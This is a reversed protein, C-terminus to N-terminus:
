PPHHKQGLLQSRGADESQSKRRRENHGALRKRCSRKNDDFQSLVQFRSCQQCYRQNIGGVLVVAAKAHRECVRHRRHYRKASILDVDCGDAQCCLMQFNVVERKAGSVGILDKKKSEEEEAETEEHEDEDDEDDQECGGYDKREKLTRKVM